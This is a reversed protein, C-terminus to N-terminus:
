RREANLLLIHSLLNKIDAHAYLTEMFSFQFKVNLTYEKAEVAKSDKAKWGTMRGDKKQELGM